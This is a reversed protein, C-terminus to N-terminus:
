KFLLEKKVFFIIVLLSYIWTEMIAAIGNKKNFIHILKDISIYDGIVLYNDFIFEVLWFM